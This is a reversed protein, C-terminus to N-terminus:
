KSCLQCVFHMTSVNYSDEIGVCWYHFWNKCTECMIYNFDPNEISKCVCVRDRQEIPPTIEDTVSSYTANKYKIDNIEISNIYGDLDTVQIKGTLCNLPVFAELDSAFVENDSLHYFFAAYKSSLTNRNFYYRVKLVAFTQGTNKYNACFYAEDLIAFFEMPQNRPGTKITLKISDGAQFEQKLYTFRKVQKINDANTSILRKIEDLDSLPQDM